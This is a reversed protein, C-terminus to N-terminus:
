GLLPLTSHLLKRNVLNLDLNVLEDPRFWGVQFTEEGDPSPRGSLVRAQYVIAVCAVQDGNPYTIRYDSGGVATLLRTLGVTIGAEERAERVAADQPSEDVEVSGGITAWRGTDIQRVLLIRGDENVPLVAVTPLLLLDGGIRERIAAIYPSITM